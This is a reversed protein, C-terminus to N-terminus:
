IARSHSFKNCCLLGPNIAQQTPNDRLIFGNFPQLLLNLFIGGRPRREDGLGLISQRKECPIFCSIRFIPIGRNCGSCTMLTVFSRHRGRRQGGRRRTDGQRRRRGTRGQRSGRRRRHPWNRRQKWWRRRRDWRDRLGGTLLHFSRYIKTHTDQGGWKTLVTATCKKYLKALLHLLKSGYIGSDIFPRSGLPKCITRFEHARRTDTREDVLVNWAAWCFIPSSLSFTSLNGQNIWIMSTVLGYAASLSSIGFASRNCDVPM